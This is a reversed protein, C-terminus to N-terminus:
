KHPTQQTAAYCAQSKANAGTCDATNLEAAPPATGEAKPPPPGVEPIRNGPPGLVRGPVQDINTETDASATNDRPTQTQVQMVDHRGASAPVHALSATGSFLLAISSLALLRM